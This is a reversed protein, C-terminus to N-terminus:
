NALAVKSQTNERSRFALSQLKKVRKTIAKAPAAPGNHESNLTDPEQELFKGQTTFPVEQMDVSPTGILNEYNEISARNGEAVEMVEQEADVFPELKSSVKKRMPKRLVYKQRAFSPDSVIQM